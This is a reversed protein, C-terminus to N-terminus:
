VGFMRLPIWTLLSRLGNTIGYYISKKTKKATSIPANDHQFIAEGEAFKNIGDGFATQLVGIYLAANQKGELFQIPVKENYGIAGWIMVSGGGAQRKQHVLPKKRKDHWYYAFGDPGDLNFKKEDSFVWSHWDEPTDIRSQCWGLRAKMHRKELAPRVRMKRYVLDPNEHIVRLVTRTSVKLNLQHRIREASTCTNSALTWIHRKTREDVSSKRKKWTGAIRKTPNRMFKSLTGPSRRIITAIKRLSLGSEMLRQITEMEWKQLHKARGM